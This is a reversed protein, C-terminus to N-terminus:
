NSKHILKMLPPQERKLSIDLKFSDTYSVSQLIIHHYQQRECAKIQLRIYLFLEQQSVEVTWIVFTVQHSLFIWIHLM